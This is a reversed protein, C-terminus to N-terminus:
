LKDEYRQKDLTGDDHIGNVTIIGDEAAAIIPAEDLQKVTRHTHTHTHLSLSLSLSLCLSSFSLPTSSIYYVVFSCTCTKTNQNHDTSKRM